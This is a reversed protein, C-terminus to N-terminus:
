SHWCCRGASGRGGGRARAPLRVWRSGLNRRRRRQAGHRSACLGDSADSASCFFAPISFSLSLRVQQQEEVAEEAEDMLKLLNKLDRELEAESVGGSEAMEDRPTGPLESRPDIAPLDLGGRTSPRRALIESM